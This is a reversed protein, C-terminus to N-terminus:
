HVNLEGKELWEVTWDVQRKLKILEVLENLHGQISRTINEMEVVFCKDLDFYEDPIRGIFTM